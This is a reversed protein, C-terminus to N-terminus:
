PAHPPLGALPNQEARARWERLIRAAAQLTQQEYVTAVPGTESWQDLHREVTAWDWVASPLPPTGPPGAALMENVADWAIDLTPYQATIRDRVPRSVTYAGGLSGLYRQRSQGQEWVTAMLHAVSGRWRIWAM